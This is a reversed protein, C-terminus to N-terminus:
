ISDDSTTALSRSRFLGINVKVTLKKIITNIKHLKKHYFGMITKYM